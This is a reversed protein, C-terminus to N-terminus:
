PAHASLTSLKGAQPAVLSFLAMLPLFAAGTEVPPYGLMNQMYLSVYFLTGLMALGVLLMATNAGSLRRKEFLSLDLMPVPQRLELVVFLTLAAAALRIRGCNPRLGLRITAARDLEAEM